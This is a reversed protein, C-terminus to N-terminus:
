EKHRSAPVIAVRFGVGDWFRAIIDNRRAVRADEEDFDWIGGRVVVADTNGASEIERGDAPYYPYPKYLSRTWEWVNGSMDAAGYPSDGHPSYAGVPTSEGGEERTNCHYGGASFSNGWPWIRGDTGRAAKEWEVESPLSFCYGSPVEHTQNLWRIFTNAGNWNIGELPRSERGTVDHLRGVSEAFTAYVKNTVPYRGILYEYPVNMEHRPKARDIDDESGFIFRGKPVRVFDIGAFSYIPIRDPTFRGTASATPPLTLFPRDSLEVNSHVGNLSKARVKLSALVRQYVGDRREPPFYDVYQWNRLRRPPQCAELRVPVIFIAEDPKTLAVSLTFRLEKQIYGEKSISNNSLFVIIADAVEVAKEIELEWDQGPLLEEEDVWADIWGEALFREYLPRVAPKDDSAHCLFVRLRRNNPETVARGRNTGKGLLYNVPKKENFTRKYMNDLLIM